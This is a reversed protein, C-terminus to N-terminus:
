NLPSSLLTQLLSKSVKENMSKRSRELIILRYYTAIIARDLYLRQHPSRAAFQRSLRHRANRPDRMWSSLPLQRTFLRTQRPFCLAFGGKLTLPPLSSKLFNATCLLFSHILIPTRFSLLPPRHACTVHHKTRLARARERSSGLGACAPGGTAGVATAEWTM